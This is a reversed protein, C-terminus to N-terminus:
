ARTSNFGDTNGDARGGRWKVCANNPPRFVSASPCRQTHTQQRAAGPGCLPRGVHRGDSLRPWRRAASPAAGDLTGNPEPENARNARNPQTGRGRGDRGLRLHRPPPRHRGDRSEERRRRVRPPGAAAMADPHRIPGDMRLLSRAASPASHLRM